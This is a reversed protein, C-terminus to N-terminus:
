KRAKQGTNVAFSQTTSKMKEGCDICYGEVHVIIEGLKGNEAPANHAGLGTTAAGRTTGGAGKTAVNGAINGLQGNASPEELDSLDIPKVTGVFKKTADRRRDIDQAFKMAENDADSARGSKLLDSIKALPANAASGIEKLLGKSNNIIEAAATGTRETAMKNKLDGTLNDIASGTQIVASDMSDKLRARAAAGVDKGAAQTGTGATAVSQITSLNAVNATGRTAELLSRIKTLETYSKAEIDAGRKTNDQVVKDSLSQVAAAGTKGSAFAELIREATQRDKAFSGLPGQQLIMIQKTFQAAAQPSQAAQDLTVIQGMQRNMQQKVKDMVKAIGDPGQLLKEMQFAGMLGGPGGTQASLFAEQAIDMRKIGETMGQVVEIAARGSIGTSQLAGLYQNMMKAAGEADAGFMKFMDGTSKLAGRVDDLEIHFKNSIEGMRATFQLAKEGTINYDRFATKMDDVVDVFKRGSGTAYQITATLMSVNENMGVGGKVTSTLAGPLNGLVGYYEEIQTASLGTATISDTVSKQYQQTISNINQLSDGAADYIATLNGTNASLQIISNQLRLANDASLLVNQAYGLFTNAGSMMAKEIEAVPRGAKALIDALSKAGAAGVSFANANGGVVAKLDNLQTTFTGINKTDVGTLSEFSDRAGLAATALLGFAATQGQTLNQNTKLNINLATLQAGLGGLRSAVANATDGFSKFADQAKGAMDASDSLTTTTSTTVGTITDSTTITTPDTPAAM